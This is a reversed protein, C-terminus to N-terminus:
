KLLISILHLSYNLQTLYIGLMSSPNSKGTHLIKGWKCPLLKAQWPKKSGPLPCTAGSGPVSTSNSMPTNSVPINGMPTNRMPTNRTPTNSMLTNSMSSNRLPAPLVLRQDSQDRKGGRSLFLGPLYQIRVLDTDHSLFDLTLSSLGKYRVAFFSGKSYLFTLKLIRFLLYIQDKNDEIFMRLFITWFLPCNTGGEPSMCFGSLGM